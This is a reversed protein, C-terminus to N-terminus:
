ESPSGFLEMHIRGPDVGMGQLAESQAKMFPLPGCIYYDADPVVAVDKISGLDVRGVFDYDEGKKDGDTVQEYFVARSVQPNEAVIKSLTPKMAHVRSNRAAHVFVVKREKAQEVLTKLMAMMPTLGVGGSMLVAPTTANVDLVFDGFPFSVDLDAGVPLSEHLVNSVRGAPRDDQAFERKVSIQFYKGNPVDSLSYQRPQYSGLEPVFCRVSVFQGPQYAPLADRDEPTLHFSIIEDSEPVKASVFFKRWGKWGGPTAKAQRYLDSEFQIFIDALQQYAAAWAELIEPTAASGLVDKIAALLGQGVIPYQEATVGLSAHKHGIRSVAEKLAGPNDINSAYAWVAHALAAPQEGTAQHATNFINRLEPHDQLLRKYFLTTIAIGHQELAPITAKVIQKQQTTLAPTAAAAFSRRAAPMWSRSGARLIRQAFM